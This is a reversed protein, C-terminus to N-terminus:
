PLESHANGDIGDRLLLGMQLIKFKLKCDITLDEITTPTLHHIILTSGEEMWVMIVAAQTTAAEVWEEMIQATAVGDM